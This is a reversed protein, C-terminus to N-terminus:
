SEAVSEKPHKVFRGKQKGYEKATLYIVVADFLTLAIFSFTPQQIIHYLQYIVFGATVIILGPYAWLHERLIAIVLVLKVLGHSLLYLAAFIATGKTFSQAWHLIHTAIFDRPDHGLEPAVLNEVFKSVKEPRILLFFLGGLTESLGDLGKLFLSIEFAKDLRTKPHFVAM